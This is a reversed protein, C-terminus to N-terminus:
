QMYKEYDRNKDINCTYCNNVKCQPMVETYKETILVKLSLLNGAMRMDNKTDNWTKILNFICQGEKHENIIKIKLDEDNKNRTNRTIKTKLIIKKIAIPQQDKYLENKYKFIFKIAETEYLKNIPIIKSLAFLKDTHVNGRASFILRVAKKQLKFLKEMQTKNLKDMYTITCYDIHSKFLSNYILLKTKYNFTNRTCILAKITNELKKTVMEFQKDFKLKGDFWVGLFRANKLRTIETNNIYMKESINVAKKKPPKFILYNSKLKNVILTNETMYQHTKTLETNMRKILTNPDKDSLIYKTDDAFMIAECKTVQNLEQTYHNYVTPGLCSGQVCSHNFLDIPSSSVGNWETYQKRYTFFSKFFRTTKDDAGYHKLKAPLIKECELTDFALSLDILALCVYNGKQLEKEILNRTLLIPHVTSHNTKYAFQREDDFNEKLYKEFQDLSAKEIVKSFCSLQSIPRFNGPEPPEKKLVPTIKSLKLKEPFQGSSFCKNIIITLPSVLTSAAANLLKSPVGDFGHSPKPTISKIYFWTDIKRINKLSFKDVKKDLPNLFKQFNMDSKLDKIKNIAAHKYYDSLTSAIEHDDVMTKNNHTIKSHKGSKPQRNLVEGIIQWTKKSDKGAKKLKDVYHHNYAQKLANKYTQKLTKYQSENTINSNKLFKQRANDSDRKLYLVEPTMWPQIPVFRKAKKKNEYVLSSQIIDHFSDYTKDLDWSDTETTWNKWNFQKLKSITDKYHLKKTTNQKDHNKVSQEKTKGGWQTIIMQHDAVEHHTVMTEINTLNSIVHDITTNTHSTLRTYAKVYQFMNWHTLKADYAAKLCNDNSYDINLDGAIITTKNEINSLIKEIDDLTDIQNTGPPRYISTLTLNTNNIKIDAAVAEINTLNLDCIKENIKYDYKESIYIAVGGGNKNPPQLKTIIKHYGELSVFPPHPKWVECLTIFDPNYTKIINKLEIFIKTLSRINITIMQYKNNTINKKIEFNNTWIFDKSTNIKEDFPSPFIPRPPIRQLFSTNPTSKPCPIGIPTKM